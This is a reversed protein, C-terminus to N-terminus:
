CKVRNDPKHNCFLSYHLLGHHCTHGHLVAHFCQLTHFSSYQKTIPTHTPDPSQRCPFIGENNVLEAQSFFRINKSRSFVSMVNPIYKIMEQPILPLFCSEGEPKGASSEKGTTNDKRNRKRDKGGHEEGLDIVLERESDSDEVSVPQKAEEKVQSKERPGPSASLAKTKEPNEKESDKGIKEKNPADSVTATTDGAASETAMLTDAKGEKDQSPSPQDSVKSKTPEKQAEDKPAGDQGDKTKQEEDSAYESDSSDSKDSDESDSHEVGKYM